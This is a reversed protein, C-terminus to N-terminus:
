AFKNRNKRRLVEREKLDREAERREKPDVLDDNNYDM